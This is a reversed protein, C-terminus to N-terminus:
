MSFILYFAFLLCTSPLYFPGHHQRRMESEDREGCQASLASVHGSVTEFAVRDKVNDSSLSFSLSSCGFFEQCLGRPLQRILVSTEFGVRRGFGSRVEDFIASGLM